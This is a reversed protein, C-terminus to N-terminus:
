EHEETYKIMEGWVREIRALFKLVDAMTRKTKFFKPKMDKVFGISLDAHQTTELWQISFDITEPKIGRQRETGIKDNTVGGGKREAVAVERVRMYKPNVDGPM